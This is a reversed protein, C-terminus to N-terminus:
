VEEPVVSRLWSGFDEWEEDSICHDLNDYVKFQVGATAIGNRNQAESVGVTEKLWLYLDHGLAFPVVTDQRGHALLIPVTTIHASINETFRDRAVPRGSLTAIGGLRDKCTLGAWVSIAGGQSFGTVVIRTSAIKSIQPVEGPSVGILAADPGPNGELPTNQGNKEQEILELIADISESIGDYDWPGQSLDRSQIIDFWAPYSNNAATIWRSKAQPLLWKIHGLGPQGKLHNVYGMLSEASGGSGHLFIITASHKAPSLPPITLVSELVNRTGYRLGSPQLRDSM